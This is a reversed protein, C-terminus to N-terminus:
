VAAKVQSRTSRGHKPQATKPKSTNPQSTSVKGKKNADRSGAADDVPAARKGLAPAAPVVPAECMEELEYDDIEKMMSKIRELEALQAAQFQDQRSISKSAASPSPGTLPSKGGKVPRPSPGKKAVNDAGCTDEMEIALPASRQGAVRPADRAKMKFNGRRLVGRNPNQCDHSGRSASLYFAIQGAVNPQFYGRGVAAAALHAFLLDFLVGYSDGVRRAAAVDGDHFTLRKHRRAV